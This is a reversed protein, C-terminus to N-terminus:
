AYELEEEKETEELRRQIEDEIDIMADELGAYSTTAYKMQDAMDELSELVVGIRQTEKKCAEILKEITKPKNLKAVQARGSIIALSNNVHHTMTVMLQSTTEIRALRTEKERLDREIQRMRLLSRIRVLVEEIEFPKSIYDDAGAEMGEIVHNLGGYATLMLIPLAKTSEDTRLIKCVEYGDIGPMKIDLLVLDPLRKAIYDLAIEGNEAVGVEYGSRELKAKLVDQILPDDDVVLILHRERQQSNDM